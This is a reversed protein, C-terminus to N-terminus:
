RFLYPLQVELVPIWDTLRASGYLQVKSNLPHNMHIGFSLEELDNGTKYMIQNVNRLRKRGWRQYSYQADRYDYSCQRAVEHTHSHSCEHTNQRTGRQYLRDDVSGAGNKRYPGVTTRNERAPEAVDLRSVHTTNKSDVVFDILEPQLHMRKELRHVLSCQCHILERPM